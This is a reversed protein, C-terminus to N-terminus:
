ALRERLKLKWGRSLSTTLITRRIALAHLGAASDLMDLM